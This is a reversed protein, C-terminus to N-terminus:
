LAAVRHDRGRSHDPVACTGPLLYDKPGGHHRQAAAAENWVTGRVTTEDPAPELRDTINGELAIVHPHFLHVDAISSNQPPDNLGPPVDHDSGCLHFSGALSSRCACPPRRGFPVTRLHGLVWSRRGLPRTRRPRRASNQGPRREIWRAAPSRRDM